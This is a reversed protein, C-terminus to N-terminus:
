RTDETVDSTRPLTIGVLVEPRSAWNEPLSHNHSVLPQWTYKVRTATLSYHPSCAMQRDIDIRANIKNTWRTKVTNASHQAGNIVRDCRLAWILHISESILIIKLRNKGKNAKSTPNPHTHSTSLCGCGLIAGFSPKQWEGLSTPWIRQLVNWIVTAETSPCDTLIHELSEEPYNCQSCKARHKYNEIKSWFNGIRLSGHIARFLFNQVPKRIDPHRTKHWITADSELSGNANANAIAHRTIDLNMLPTRNYEHDNTNKIHRYALAQTISSIKAGQLNFSAPITMDIVDSLQKNAGENALRDAGDNGETQNHGKTWKFSTPAARRRLHYAATQFLEKNSIGIWGINEWTALHKTLGDIVYRSDSIIELPTLPPTIQLAVAVAAIEGAQNSQTTGPVKIARNM